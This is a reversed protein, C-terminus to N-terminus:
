RLRRDATIASHDTPSTLSRRSHLHDRRESRHSTAPRRPRGHDRRSTAPKRPRQHDCRSTLEGREPSIPLVGHQLDGENSWTFTRWAGYSDIGPVELIPKSRGPPAALDIARPLKRASM